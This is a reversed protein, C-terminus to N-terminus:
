VDEGESEPYKGCYCCGVDPDTWGYPIETM